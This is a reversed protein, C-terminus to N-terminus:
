EAASLWANRATQALHRVERARDALVELLFALVGNADPRVVRDDMQQPLVMLIRVCRKRVALRGRDTSFKPGWPNTDALISDEEASAGSRTHPLAVKRAANLYVHQSAAVISSVHDQLLAPERKLIDLLVSCAAEVDQIHAAKQMAALAIRVIRDADGEYQELTLQKVAHLIFVAYIVSDDKEPQLPYAAQIVPHVCQHYTRQRHIPNKILPGLDTPEAFIKCLFRAILGGRRPGSKVAAHSIAEELAKDIFRDGRTMAGVLISVIRRFRTEEMNAMISADSLAQRIETLVQIWADHSHGAIREAEKNRTDYKNAVLLAVSERAYRARTPIQIQVGLDGLLIERM